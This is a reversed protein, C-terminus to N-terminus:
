LCKDWYSNLFRVLCETNERVVILDIAPKDGQNAAVQETGLRQSRSHSILFLTVRVSAVPRINAYLDLQKRLAVIPSSYGVV